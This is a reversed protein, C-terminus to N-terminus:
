FADIFFNAKNVRLWRIKLQSLTLLRFLLFKFNSIYSFSINKRKGTHKEVLSSICIKM